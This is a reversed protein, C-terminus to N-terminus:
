IKTEDLEGTVTGDVTYDELARFQAAYTSWNTAVKYSDVLAAPVYIYGTGSAIPTNNFVTADGCTCITEGRLILATLADCHYFTMGSIYTVQPLDVMTLATDACFAYTYVYSVNPLNVDILYAQSSLAYHGITKVRDDKYETLSGSLIADVLADEGIIEYTNVFDAM